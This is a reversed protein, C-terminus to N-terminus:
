AVHKAKVSIGSFPFKLYRPSGVIKGRRARAPCMELLREVIYNSVLNYTPRCGRRICGSICCSDIVIAQM